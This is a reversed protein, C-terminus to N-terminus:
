RGGAPWRARNRYRTGGRGRGCRRGLCRRLVGRATPFRGPFPWLSRRSNGYQGVDPVLGAAVTPQVDPVLGAAVAPQVDPVLGAAVAPRVDPVLGAAVAPQVDSTVWSAIALRTAHCSAQWTLDSSLEGGLTPELGCKCVEHGAPSICEPSLSPYPSLADLKTGLEELLSCRVYPKGRLEVHGAEPVCQCLCCFGQNLGVDAVQGGQLAGEGRM